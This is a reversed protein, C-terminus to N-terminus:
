PTGYVWISVDAVLGPPSPAHYQVAVSRVMVLQDLAEIGRMYEGLNQYTGYIRFRLEAKRYTVPRGAADTVTEETVGGAPRILETAIGYRDALPSIAKLFAPVMDREPLARRAHFTLLDEGPHTKAWAKMGELGATLDVLQARLKQEDARLARVERARPEIYVARTVGISAVLGVLIIGHGLLPHGPVRKM